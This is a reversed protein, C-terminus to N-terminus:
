HAVCDVDHHSPRTLSLRIRHPSSLLQLFKDALTRALIHRITSDTDGYTADIVFM